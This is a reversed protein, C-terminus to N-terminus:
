ELREFCGKWTGESGNVVEGVCMEGEDRRQSQIRFLDGGALRQIQRCAAKKEGDIGEFGCIM